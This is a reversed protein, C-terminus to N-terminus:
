RGGGEKAELMEAAARSAVLRADAITDPIGVGRFSSGTLHLGRHRAAAREIAAVRAQHGVEYQPNAREWRYVRSLVPSGSIGLIRALDEHATAILEVDSRGVVGPDRAGGLFARLLVHGEPARGPWKSSLWTCATITVGPETRPVVFGSGELPHAVQDRRYALAVTASSLYPIRGCLRALEGDLPEVLRATAHAPAALIVAEAALTGGSSLRLDFRSARRLERVEVGLRMSGDPLAAVIANVLEQMGGPLSRFPGNSDLDPQRMARLGRVVSGHRQEAAVLKPFLAGISLRAAEGAHIGALLPDGLLRVAERGFRRGVFAAISEDDGAPRGAPLVLDLAMRLRSRRSFLPNSLIEPLSAPIGLAAGRPLAVLQGQELVFAGRPSRVPMLRGEIGLERCLELAAPKQILFADAGADITFEGVRDSSLLGGPRPSAELILFRVGRRSLEYGAALGAIGAGVIAVPASSAGV